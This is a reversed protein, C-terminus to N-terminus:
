VVSQSNNNVPDSTSAPVNEQENSVEPILKNLEFAKNLAPHGKIEEHPVYDMRYGNPYHKRYSNEHRDSRDGKFIGLDYPIFYDASCLHVGLVHGDEAIALASYWGVSGGNNFGYIVPLGEVPKNQPNFIEYNENM